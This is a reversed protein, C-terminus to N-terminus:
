QYHRSLRSFARLWGVGGSCRSCTLTLWSPALARLVALGGRSCCVSSPVAKHEGVCDELAWLDVAPSCAGSKREQACANREVGFARRSGCSYWDLLLATQTWYEKGRVAAQPRCVWLSYPQAYTKSIQRWQFHDQAAQVPQFLRRAWSKYIRALLLRNGVADVVAVPLLKALDAARYADPPCERRAFGGREYKANM